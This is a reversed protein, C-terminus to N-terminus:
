RELTGKVIGAHVLARLLQNRAHSDPQGGNEPAPEKPIPQRLDAQGLAAAMDNELRRRPRTLLSARAPRDGTIRAFVERLAFNDDALCFFAPNKVLWDFVPRLPQHAPADEQGPFSALGQRHLDIILNVHGILTAPSQCFLAPQRVAAHLYDRLELGHPAFHEAVTEINATLTAPSQCFIAPQRVAAHLYDRLQLGHPAFHEVVETMKDRFRFFSSDPKTIHPLVVSNALLLQATQGIEEENLPLERLAQEIRQRMEAPDHALSM